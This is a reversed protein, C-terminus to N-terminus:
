KKFSDLFRKYLPYTKNDCSEQFEELLERQRKSLKTPTEVQIRVLLDGHQYGRLDPLGQNRLRLVTGSQTGAPVKLDAEGDLTPVRITAGLAAQTISVPADLHLNNGERRFHDHDEVELFVYLDGRPGGNLGPEGEGSVRLRTGTDVGAPVDISVERTGKTQGAGNCSRCPKSITTGQGRCAPCTRTVSFFGHAARVQGAGGCQTCPEPKAGPAAGTGKCDGCNEMRAFRVTKKAGTAAEKLSLRLRLELDNGPQVNSRARRAGGGQGFLVDFFDDFPSEQGGGGGGGFGGAGGFGGGGFPNPGDTGFRDYQKRKEPNKLTDYAANIEKLRMEAEKDGGTKDPHYKHALKLYAKRIEDQTASRAVGLTEYLDAAM